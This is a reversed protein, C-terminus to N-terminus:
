RSTKQSGTCPSNDEGAKAGTKTPAMEEGNRMSDALCGGDRGGYNPASSAAPSLPRGEGESLLEKGYQQAPIDGGQGQREDEHAGDGRQQGHLRGLPGWRRRLLIAGILGGPEAIPVGVRLSLNKVSGSRPSNDETNNAGTKTPTMEEGSPTPDASRGGNGSGYNPASSAATSLPRGEGRLSLNAVAGSRPSNNERDKAGTNTPATEEGSSVADASRGGEDENYNQRRHPQRAGRAAM